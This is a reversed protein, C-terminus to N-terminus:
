STGQVQIKSSADPPSAGDRVCEPQLLYWNHGGGANLFSCDFHAARVTDLFEEKLLLFNIDAAVQSQGSESFFVSLLVKGDPSLCRRIENLYNQIEPLPMHTFVSALLVSDFSRDAWPFKFEVAPVAAGQGDIKQYCSEIAFFRFDFKPWHSSIADRCWDIMGQHRDFGAYSALPEEILYRAVRGCGCGIDLLRREAGLMDQRKLMAVLERGIGQFWMSLAPSPMPGCVLAMFEDPPLPLFEDLIM